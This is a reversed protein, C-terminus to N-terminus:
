KDQVEASPKIYPALEPVVIRLQEAVFRGFLRSGEANLHTRDPKGDSAPPPAISKVGEPGLSEYVEISKAYLDILPVNMEAAVARTAEVYNALHDPKFKGDDTFSRRALSTVLIPKTGAARAEEVYRKMNQRFTTNPDTEREPGKGPQDNHGFQILMYDAKLAIAKDWRGEDRYSKSSRGGTATNILEADPTLMEKLGPGWGQRDSMTSDGVLVIKIRTAPPKDPAAEEAKAVLTLCFLVTLSANIIFNRMDAKRENM